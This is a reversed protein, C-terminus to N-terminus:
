RTGKDRSDAKKNGDRVEKKTETTDKSLSEWWEKHAVFYYHQKKTALKKKELLELICLSNLIQYARPQDVIKAEHQLDPSTIFSNKDVFFYNYLIDFIRGYGRRRVFLRAEHYTDYTDIYKRQNIESM